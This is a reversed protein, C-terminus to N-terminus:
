NIFTMASKNGTNIVLSEGGIILTVAEERGERITAPPNDGDVNEMSRVVKMGRVINKSLSRFKSNKYRDKYLVTRCKRNVEQQSFGLGFTAM